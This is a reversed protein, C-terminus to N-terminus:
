LHPIGPSSCSCRAPKSPAPASHPAFIERQWASCQIAGRQGVELRGRGGRGGWIGRLSSLSAPAMYRLKTRAHSVAEAESYGSGSLLLLCKKKVQQCCRWDNDRRGCQAAMWSCASRSPMFRPASKRHGSNAGQAPPTGAPAAASPSSVWAQGGWQPAGPAATQAAENLHLARAVRGCSYAPPSSQSSMWLSWSFFIILSSAGKQVGRFLCVSCLDEERRSRTPFSM